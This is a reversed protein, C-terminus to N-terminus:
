VWLETTPSLFVASRLDDDPAFARPEKSGELLPRSGSDEEITMAMGNDLVIKMATRSIDVSGITRGVLQPSLEDSASSLWPKPTGNAAYYLDQVRRGDVQLWDGAGWIAIMLWEEGLRLGFFGPGGMGYTGACATIEDIVRGVVDAARLPQPEFDVMEASPGLGREEEPIPAGAPLEFKTIITTM